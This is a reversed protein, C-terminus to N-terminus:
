PTSRHPTKALLQPKSRLEPRVAFQERLRAEIAETVELDDAKLALYFAGIVPPFPPIVFAFAPLRTALLSRVRPVLPSDASLIGGCAVVVLEDSDLFGAAEATAVTLDALCHAARDLIAAAAADGEAACRMVVPALRAIEARDFSRGTMRNYVARLDPEHLATPLEAVLTTDAATHDTARAACKLAEMAIWFGSGEDGLAWGWGGVLVHGAEPHQTSEAVAVTGTGAIIAIGGRGATGSALAALADSDLVITQEATVFESLVRRAIGASGTLALCCVAIEPSTVPEPVAHLAASIAARFADRVFTEAATEDHHRIPGGHGVGVIEGRVNIVMAVTGSQGGDIALYLESM